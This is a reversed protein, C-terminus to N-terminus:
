VMEDPYYKVEIERDEYNDFIVLKTPYQYNTQILQNFVFNINAKAESISDGFYYTHVKFCDYSDVRYRPIELEGNIIM